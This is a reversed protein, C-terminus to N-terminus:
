PYAELLIKIIDYSADYLLATHLWLDEYINYPVKVTDLYLCLLEQVRKFSANNKLAEVLQNSM